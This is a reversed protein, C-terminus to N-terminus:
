IGIFAICGTTFESISSNTLAILTNTNKRKKVHPAFVGFNTLDYPIAFCFVTTSTQPDERAELVAVAESYGCV